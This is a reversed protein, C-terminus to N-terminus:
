GETELGLLSELPEPTHMAFGQAYDVGIKRLAEALKDTEVYEAITKKGLVHGVENITRVLSFDEESSLMLSVFSGDIKVYDVPLHKLYNFSALGTGFDDLAFRCGIDRLARLVDACRSLDAIAATETIEFCVRDPAVRYAELRDRIFEVFGPRGFTKGSINICVVEDGQSKGMVALTRDVVAEDLLHIRGYAEAAPVFAAPPTLEGSATILRALVEIQPGPLADESDAGQLPEIRHGLLRLDGEKLAQDLSDLQRMALSRVELAREGHDYTCVRDGGTSKRTLDLTMELKNLVDDDDGSHQDLPALVVTATVALKRGEFESSHEKIASHTSDALERIEAIAKGPLIIGFEDGGLRALEADEPSIRALLEALDRLLQDGAAQGASGNIVAFQDLNILLVGHRKSVLKCENIRVRIRRAFEGRNLLGTLPDHTAQHAIQDHMRSVMSQWSRDSLPLDEHQAIEGGMDTGLRKALDASTMERALQGERNVFVYRTRQTNVWALKVPEIKNNEDPLLLWSGEELLKVQGLWFNDTEEKPDEDQSQFPWERTETKEGELLRKLEDMLADRDLPHVQANELRKRLKDLLTSDDDEAKDSGQHLREGIQSLLDVSEAVAKSEPGERLTSVTMLQRLGADLVKLILPSVKTGVFTRDLLEAVEQEAERRKESGDFSARIKRISALRRREQRSFVSRIKKAADAFNEATPSKLENLDGVIREVQQVIPDSANSSDGRPALGLADILDHVPHSRSQLLSSDKLLMKALPRQIRDVSDRTGSDIIRDGLVSTMLRDTLSIDAMREPPPAEEGAELLHASLAQLLPGAEVPVEEDGGDLRNVNKGLLMKQLDRLTDASSEEIIPPREVPTPRSPRQDDDRGRVPTPRLNPLIGNEILVANIREYLVDLSRILEGCTRLLLLEANHPIELVDMAAALHNTIAAPNVPNRDHNVPRGAIKTLRAELAFLPRAHRAQGSSSIESCVLRTELETEDVLSMEDVVEEEKIEASKNDLSYWHDSVKECFAEVFSARQRKIIRNAAFFEAQENANGAREAADFLHDGVTDLVIELRKRLFVDSERSLAKRLQNGALVNQDKDTENM